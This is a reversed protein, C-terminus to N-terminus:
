QGGGEKVRIEEKGKKCMWVSYHCMTQHIYVAMKEHIDGYIWTNRNIFTFLM